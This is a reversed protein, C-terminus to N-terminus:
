RSLVARRYQEVIQRALKDRNTRRIEALTYVKSTEVYYPAAAAHFLGYKWRSRKKRCARISYDFEVVREHWVTLHFVSADRYISVRRGVREWERKLDELTPALVNRCFSAVEARELTRRTADRADARSKRAVTRRLIGVWGFLIGPLSATARPPYHAM